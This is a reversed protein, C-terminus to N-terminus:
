VATRDMPLTLSEADTGRGTSFYPSHRVYKAVAAMGLGALVIAAPLSFMFWGNDPSLEFHDSMTLYSYGLYGGLGLLILGSVAPVGIALLAERPGERRASRFRVACALATLGYYLAVILGIANVAALLMDSLRPIAVALVAIVGAVAMVVVTGTAPTGWRPHVRTWVPGMTRDRSMAFLGRATPILTAQVSAVASFMLAVLPLTAWPEAALKGGLYPLAQPGNRVLEALSMERQFAVSAFLFLGLMAFLAILGGRAADGPSKTEENVSFAADWGWFFFVALVMGQAFATGGAIEFPNFWSLSLAHDGTILAWGCFALLVTYEFVLLAFQFRTAARVGTVALATLALLIVLGVATTVGTSTPDLAIGAVSHLGAKDAFALVVSGMIASTYACFIVSGVLTVWGTLFGPWPGLSKGVWVYGNGCNPESRNLRAYATAIGLVPLFALLLLAPAQLGVVAAITGMGIAISTTAATSSAAIAVGDVVGLSRRLDPSPASSLPPRSSM